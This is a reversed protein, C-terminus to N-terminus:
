DPHLTARSTVMIEIRGWHIWEGIIDCAVSFTRLM